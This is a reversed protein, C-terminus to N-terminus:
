SRPMLACAGRRRLRMRAPRVPAGAKKTGAPAPAAVTGPKPPAMRNAYFAARFASLSNVGVAKFFAHMDVRQALPKSGDASKVFGCSLALQQVAELPLPGAASVGAGSQEFTLAAMRASTRRRAARASSHARVQRARDSACGGPRSDSSARANNRRGTRRNVGATLCRRM